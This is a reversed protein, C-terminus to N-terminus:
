RKSLVSTALQVPNVPYAITPCALLIVLGNRTTSLLRALQLWKEFDMDMRVLVTIVFEFYLFENVGESKGGNFSTPAKDEPTAKRGTVM